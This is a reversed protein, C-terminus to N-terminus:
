IDSSPCQEEINSYVHNLHYVTNLYQIDIDSLAAKNIYVHIINEGKKRRRCHPM